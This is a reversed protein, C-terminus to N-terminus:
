TVPERRRRALQFAFAGAMAGVTDAAWDVPAPSRGPVFQQHWEDAAGFLTVIAFAALTTRASSAELARATLLGLIAYMAVHVLKDV